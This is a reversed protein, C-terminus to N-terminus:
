TRLMRILWDEVDVRGQGRAYQWARSMAEGSNDPTINFTEALWVAVSLRGAACVNRFLDNGDKKVENETISFTKALWQATLLHGNICTTSFVYNDRAPMLIKAKFEGAFWKAIALQGHACACHFAWGILTASTSQDLRASLWQVINLHGKECANRLARHHNWEIEHPPMAFHTVLWIAVEIHGGACVARFAYNNGTLAESQKISYTEALWQASAVCGQACAASFVGGGLMEERTLVFTRSVWQLPRLATVGDNVTYKASLNWWRRAVTGRISDISDCWHKCVLRAHAKERMSFMGVIMIITDAPFIMEAPETTIVDSDSTAYEGDSM